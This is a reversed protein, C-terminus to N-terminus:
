ETRKTSVVDDALVFGSKPMINVFGDKHWTVWMSLDDKIEKVTCLAKDGSRHVWYVLDGPKFHNNM